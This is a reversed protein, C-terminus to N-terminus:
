TSATFVKEITPDTEWRQALATAFAKAPEPNEARIVVIM